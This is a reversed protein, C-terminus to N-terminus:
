CATARGCAPRNGRGRRRVAASRGEAPRLPDLLLDDEGGAAHRGRGESVGAFRDGGAGAPPRLRGLADRLEREKVVLCYADGDLLDRITQVQPVILRGKPAEPTSPCWWCPWRARRCWTPWWRRRSPPFGGAGSPGAGRAIGARRPGRLCGNGCVADKDEALENWCLRMRNPLIPDQQLVVISPFRESACSASFQKRSRTGAAPTSWSSAWTPATSCKGRRKCGSKAWRGPRRHRGHRDVAGAGAAATGDAKGGPRDDHRRDGLRDFGGAPTMANLLSSKGANRRGFLGIHLRLGKPTSQMCPM